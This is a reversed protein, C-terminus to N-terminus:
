WNAAAGYTRVLDHVNINANEALNYFFTYQGIADSPYNGDEDKEYFAGTTPNVMVTDNAIQEHSYSSIGKNTLEEGYEGGNDAFYTIVWSLVLSQTTQNYIMTHLQAKRKLITDGIAVDPIEILIPTNM